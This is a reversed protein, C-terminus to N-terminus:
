NDNEIGIKASQGKVIALELLAALTQKCYDDVRITRITQEGELSRFFGSNNNITVDINM